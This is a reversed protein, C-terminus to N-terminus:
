FTPIAIKLKLDSHKKECIKSIKNDTQQSKRWKEKPINV